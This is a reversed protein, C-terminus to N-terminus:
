NAHWFAPTLRHQWDVFQSGGFSRSKDQYNDQGQLYLSLGIAQHRLRRDISADFAIPM